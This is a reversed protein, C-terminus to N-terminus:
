MTRNFHSQSSQVLLALPIALNQVLGLSESKNNLTDM